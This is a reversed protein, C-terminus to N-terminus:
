TNNRHMWFNFLKNNFPIIFKTHWTLFFSIFSTFFSLYIIVRQGRLAPRHCNHCLLICKDIEQLITKMKYETISSVKFQKENPNKHHWAMQSPHLTALCQFCPNTKLLNIQKRKNRKNIAHTNLSLSKESRTFTRLSHCNACVLECKSIETLITGRSHGRVNNINFKKEHQPLHDFDMCFSPYFKNCDICPNQSKILNIFMKNEHRIKARKELITKNHLNYSNKNLNKLHTKNKKYYNKAYESNYIKSM